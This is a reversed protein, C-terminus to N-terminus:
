LMLYGSLTLMGYFWGVGNSSAYLFILSKKVHLSVIFKDAESKIADIFVPM